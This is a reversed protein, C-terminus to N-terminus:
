PLLEWSREQAYSRKGEILESRLLEFGTVHFPAAGFDQHRKVFQRVTEAAAHNVRAITIHPHYIRREPEIGINFLADEIRKHLQFLRPHASSVGAWIAHPNGQMPFTGLGEIPLLFPHVVIPTIAEEIRSQFQGPIDGIFKLTLHFREQPVWHFGRLSDDRLTALSESVYDPLAISLFLRKGRFHQSPSEM